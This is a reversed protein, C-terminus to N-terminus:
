AMTEDQLSIVAAHRTLHRAVGQQGANRTEAAATHDILERETMKGGRAIRFFRHDGFDAPQEVVLNVGVFHHADRAFPRHFRQGEGREAAAPALHDFTSARAGCSARGKAPAFPAQWRASHGAQAELFRISGEEKKPGTDRDKGEREDRDARKGCARTERAPLEKEILELRRARREFEDERKELKMEWRKLERLKTEMPDDREADSKAGAKKELEKIRSDFERAAWAIRENFERTANAMREDRRRLMRQMRDVRDKFANELREVRQRMETARQQELRLAPGPNPDPIV